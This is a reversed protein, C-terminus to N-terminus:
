RRDAHLIGPEPLRVGAARFRDLLRMRLGSLPEGMDARSALNVILKFELHTPLLGPDFLCLPAPDALVEKTRAAEELAIRMVEATDAGHAAVLPVIGVTRETPKSYNLLIGTTIKTNPVVVMDNAATRIRTTRWGIDGVKGEQGGELRILDGVSIPQEVLIHIGAFFNALTDQLALAVAIGGVGLATLLPTISRGFNSLLTMLGITGIVVRILTHSLGAIAFPLNRRAGYATLLRVAFTAAVLTISVIIFAGIWQGALESQRRTLNAFPLSFDIAAALAWLISPVSVAEALVASFSEPGSAGRRAIRLAFHRILLLVALSAAFAALAPVWRMMVEEDVLLWSLDV